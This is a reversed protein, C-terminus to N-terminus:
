VFNVEIGADELEQKLNKICKSITSYNCAIDCQISYKISDNIYEEVSQNYIRAMKEVIRFLSPNMSLTISKDEM